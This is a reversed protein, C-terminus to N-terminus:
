RRMFEPMDGLFPGAVKQRRAAAGQDAPVGNDIGLKDTLGFLDDFLAKGDKVQSHRYLELAERIGELVSAPVVKEAFLTATREPLHYLTDAIQVQYELFEMMTALKEVIQALHKSIEAKLPAIAGQFAVETRSQAEILRSTEEGIRRSERIDAQLKRIDADAKARALDGDYMALQKGRQAFADVVEAMEQASGMWFRASEAM